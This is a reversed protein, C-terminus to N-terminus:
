VLLKRNKAKVSFVLATFAAIYSICIVLPFIYSYKIGLTIALATVITLGFLIFYVILKENQAYEHNPPQIVKNIRAISEEFDEIALGSRSLLPPEVVPKFELSSSCEAYGISFVNEKGAKPPMFYKIARLQELRYDDLTKNFWPTLPYPGLDFEFCQTLREDNELPMRSAQTKRDELTSTFSKEINDKLIQLQERNLLKYVEDAQLNEDIKYSLITCKLMELIINHKTENTLTQEQEQETLSDVPLSSHSQILQKTPADIASEFNREALQDSDQMQQKLLHSNHGNFTKSAKQQQYVLEELIVM